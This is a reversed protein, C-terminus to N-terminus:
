TNILNIKLAKTCMSDVETNWKNNSHGKIYIFSIKKIKIRLRHLKLWLDKSVIKKGNKAMWDNGIWVRILREIAICINVHDTHVIIKDNKYLKNKSIWCLARIVARIEMRDSTEKKDTFLRLNRTLEKGQQMIIYSAVGIRNPTQIFGGDTYIQIERM